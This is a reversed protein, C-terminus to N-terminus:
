AADWEISGSWCHNDIYRVHVYHERRASDTAIIPDVKPHGSTVLAIAAAFCALASIVEGDGAVGVFMSDQAEELNDIFVCADLWRPRSRALTERRSVAVEHGVPFVAITIGDVVVIVFATGTEAEDLGGLARFTGDLLLEGLGANKANDVYLELIHMHPEGSVWRGLMEDLDHRPRPYGAKRDWDAMDGFLIDVPIGPFARRMYFLLSDNTPGGVLEGLRKAIALPRAGQAAARRLARVIEDDTV